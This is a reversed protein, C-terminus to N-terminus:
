ELEREASSPDTSRTLGLIALWLSSMLFFFAEQKLQLFYTGLNCKYEIVETNAKFLFHHGKRDIM